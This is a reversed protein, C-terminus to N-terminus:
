RTIPIDPANAFRSSTRTGRSTVRQSLAFLAVCAALIGLGLLMVSIGHMRGFAIRRPDTVALADIATGISAREEAIRRAVGLAAACAISLLVAASTAIHGAQTVYSMAGVAGGAVTGLIFLTPLTRGVVAGALARSPLAAFAAPAVVAAVFVAAGIWASLVVISTTAARASGISV